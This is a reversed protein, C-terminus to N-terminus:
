LSMNGAGVLYSPQRSLKKSHPLLIVPKMPLLAQEDEEM